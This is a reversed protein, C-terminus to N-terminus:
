AIVCNEFFERAHPSHLKTARQCGAFQWRPLAWPRGRHLRLGGVSCATAAALRGLNSPPDQPRRCQARELPSPAAGLVRCCCLAVAGSLLPIAVHRCPPRDTTPTHTHTPPPLHEGRGPSVRGPPPWM